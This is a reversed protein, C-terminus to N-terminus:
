ALSSRAHDIRSNFRLRISQEGGVMIANVSPASEIIIAHADLRGATAGLLLFLAIARVLGHFAAVSAM